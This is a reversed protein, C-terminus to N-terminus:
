AKEAYLEHLIKKGKKIQLSVIELEEKLEKKEKKDLPNKLAKNISRKRKNLKKLLDKLSKKKGEVAYDNLGLTHKVKKIFKKFGM